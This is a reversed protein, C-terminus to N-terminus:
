VLERHVATIVDGHYGSPGCMLSTITVTAVVQPIITYSSYKCISPTHNRNIQHLCMVVLVTHHYLSDSIHTITKLVTINSCKHSAWIGLPNYAILCLESWITARKNRDTQLRSHHQGSKLLIPGKHEGTYKTHFDCIVHLTDRLPVRYHQVSNSSTTNDHWCTLWLPGCWSKSSNLVEVLNIHTAVSFIPLLDNWSLKHLFLHYMNSWNYWGHQMCVVLVIWPCIWSKARAPALSVYHCLLSEHIKLPM